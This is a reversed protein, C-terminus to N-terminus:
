HRRGVLGAGSHKHGIVAIVVVSVRWRRNRAALWRRGHRDLLSLRVGVMRVLDLSAAAAPTSHRVVSSRTHHVRWPQLTWRCGRAILGHCSSCSSVLLLVCRRRRVLLLLLWLILVHLQGCLGLLHLMHCLHRVNVHHLM